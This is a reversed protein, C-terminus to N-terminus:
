RAPTAAEAGAFAIRLQQAAGGKEVLDGDPLDSPGGPGNQSADRFGWYSSTETWFSPSSQSVFGTSTNEAPNGTPPPSAHPPPDNVADALYVAGTASNLALNYMKLNGLWRPSKNQDPRFVGIYVQNLNTGRVNVSVPLTTSAFVSNVAQVDILISNLAEVISTGLAGSSVGYYQGKGNVAVSKMLATMGPGPGSSDTSPDVEIVYTYVNQVGDSNPLSGSTALVDANAMFKAMEDAWNAQFGSPSIGIVSPAAGTLVGLKAELDARADANENAPGNSIYIIFSRQCGDALPTRYLGPSTGAPLAHGTLPSLVPDTTADKDTKVKGHSAISTKGAFYLYAEYLALGITANNGKDTNIDLNSILTSLATRNTQDMQRVHFRVFGGDVNDNGGGTEPFLMLGLNFQGTLGNVVQALAARENTFANNWNATNDLVFLVNPREAPNTPSALFIDTDDNVPDFVALAISAGMLLVAFVFKVLDIIKM